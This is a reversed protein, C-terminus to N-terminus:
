GDAQTPHWRIDSVNSGANASRALTFLLDSLRNIYPLIAESLGPLDAVLATVSREARRCVTRAVHLQAGVRSGGPLIFADLAPLESDLRDIWAELAETRQPDLDPITGRQLEREPRSAALRAGIVFLDRQVDALDATGLVSDRDLTLVVGLAANLEDITGYAAVRSDTKSVSEGGFLSTEGEDGRRTYIKM